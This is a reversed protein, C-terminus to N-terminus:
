ASTLLGDAMTPGIADLPFETTLIRQGDTPAAATQRSGDLEPQSGSALQAVDSPSVSAL